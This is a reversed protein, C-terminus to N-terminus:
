TAPGGAKMLTGVLVPALINDDDAGAAEQANPFVVAEVIDSFITQGDFKNSLIDVNTFAEADPVPIPEAASFTFM